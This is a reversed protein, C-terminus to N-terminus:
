DSELAQSKKCGNVFFSEILLADDNDKVEHESPDRRAFQRLKFSSLLFMVKLCDETNDQFSTQRALNQTIYRYRKISAELSNESVEALSYGHNMGILDALHALTWHLSSKLLRYEGFAQVWHSYVGKLYKRLKLVDIKGIRNSVQCVVNAEQFFQRLDEKLQGDCPYLSLM